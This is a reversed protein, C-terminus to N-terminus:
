KINLFVTKKAPGKRVKDTSNRACGRAGSGAWSGFVVLTVSTQVSWLSRNASLPLWLQFTAPFTRRPPASCTCICLVQLIFHRHSPLQLDLDHHDLHERFTLLFENQRSIDTALILSGLQQEIDQRCPLPPLLSGLLEWCQNIEPRIIENKILYDTVWLKTPFLRVFYRM